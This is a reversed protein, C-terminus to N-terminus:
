AQIWIAFVKAGFEYALATGRPLEFICRCGGEAPM